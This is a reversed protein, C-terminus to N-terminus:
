LQLRRTHHPAGVGGRGGGAPGGVDGGIGVVTVILWNKPELLYTCREALSRPSKGAQRVAMSLRYRGRYPPVSRCPIGRAAIRRGRGEAVHEGPASRTLSNRSTHSVQM